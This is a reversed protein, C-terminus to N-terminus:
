PSVELLGMSQPVEVDGVSRRRRRQEGASRSAMMEAEETSDIEDDMM